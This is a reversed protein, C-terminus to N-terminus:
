GEMEHIGRNRRFSSSSWLDHSFWFIVFEGTVKRETEVRMLLMLLMLCYNVGSSPITTIFISIFSKLRRRMMMEDKKKEQRDINMMEVSSLHVTVDVHNSDQPLVRAVGVGCWMDRPPFSRCSFSYILILTTSMLVMMIRRMMMDDVEWSFRGIMFIDTGWSM